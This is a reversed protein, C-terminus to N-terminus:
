RWGACFTGGFIRPTAIPIAAIKGGGDLGNHAQGWRYGTQIASVAGGGGAASTPMVPKRNRFTPKKKTSVGLKPTEVFNSMAHKERGIEDQTARLAYRLTFDVRYWLVSFLECLKVYM